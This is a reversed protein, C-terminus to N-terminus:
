KNFLYFIKKKNWLWPLPRSHFRLSIHGTAFIYAHLIEHDLGAKEGPFSPALPPNSHQGAFKQDFSSKKANSATPNSKLNRNQMSKCSESTQWQQWSKTSIWKGGSNGLEGPRGPLGLFPWIQRLSPLPPWLPWLCPLVHGCHWIPWLPWFHSVSAVGEKGQGWGGGSGMKEAFFNCWFNSASRQTDMNSTIDMGPVSHVIEKQGGWRRLAQLPCRNRVVAERVAWDLAVSWGSEKREPPIPGM